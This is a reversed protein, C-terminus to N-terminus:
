KLLINEINEKFQAKGMGGPVLMPLDNLPIYVLTPISRINFHAALEQEDDVNVKYIDVRGAYEEAMEDVIPSLMQCPRCWSAYFDVLAPKDGLFTWDGSLKAVRTEFEAKNLHITAM